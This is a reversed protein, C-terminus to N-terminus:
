NAAYSGQACYGAGPPTAVDSTLGRDTYFTVAQRLVCAGTFTNADTLGVFFKQTYSLVPVFPPSASLYSVPAPTLTGASCGAYLDAYQNTATSWCQYNFCNANSAAWATGNGEYNAWNEGSYKPLRHELTEHVDIPTLQYGLRDYISDYNGQVYGFYNQGFITCQQYWQQVNTYWSRPTNVYVGVTNSTYGGDTFSVYEWSATPPDVVKPTALYYVTCDRAGL